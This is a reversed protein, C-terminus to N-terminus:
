RLRSVLWLSNKQVVDRWTEEWSSSNKDGVGDWGEELALVKCVLRLWLSKSDLDGESTECQVEVAANNGDVDKTGVTDDVTDVSQQDWWWVDDLDDIQKRGLERCKLETKSLGTKKLLEVGSVVWATSEESWVVKSEELEAWTDVGEEEGLVAALVELSKELVVDNWAGGKVTVGNVAVV